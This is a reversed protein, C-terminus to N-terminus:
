FPGTNGHEWTQDKGRDLIARHEWAGVAKGKNSEM